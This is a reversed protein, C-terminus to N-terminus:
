TELNELAQGGIEASESACSGPPHVSHGKCATEGSGQFLKYFFRRVPATPVPFSIDTAPYGEACGSLAGQHTEDGVLLGLISSVWTKLGDQGHELGM